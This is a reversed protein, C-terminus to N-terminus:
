IEPPKHYNKMKTERSLVLYPGISLLLIVSKITEQSVTIFSVSFANQHGIVFSIETTM